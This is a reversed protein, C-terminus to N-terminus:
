QFRDKPLYNAPDHYQGGKPHPAISTDIIGFHLHYGTSRGTTGVYAIIQGQKVSDGVKVEYIPRTSTANDCHAYLSSVGGGHYIVVCNGYGGNWSARTVVGDKVAHIPTGRACAIDIGKHFETTPLGFPDNRVGYRSTLRQSSARIPWQMEAISNYYEEREKELASIKNKVERIKENITKIEASLEDENVGLNDIEQQIVTMQGEVEENRKEIDAVLVAYQNKTEQLDKELADLEAMSVEIDKIINSAANMIDNFHDRKALFDSLNDSSFLLEFANPEGNEYIFQMLKKYMSVRYEYDEQVIAQEAVVENIRLDYSDLIALNTIHEAELEALQSQLELYKAQKDAGAGEIDKLEEKIESLQNQLDTLMSKYKKIDAEIDTISRASVSEYDTKMPNIGLLLAFCLLFLVIKKLVRKM